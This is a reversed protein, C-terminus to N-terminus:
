RHLKSNNGNFEDNGMFAYLQGNMELLGHRVASAPPKSGTGNITTWTSTAVDFRHFDNVPFGAITV